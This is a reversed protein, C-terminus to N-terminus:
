TTLLDRTVLFHTTTTPQTRRGLCLLIPPPHKPIGLCPRPHKEGTIMTITIEVIRGLCQDVVATTQLRNGHCPVVEVVPVKKRRKGLCVMVEEGVMATKKRRKGLCVMAEVMIEMLLPHYPLHPQNGGGVAMKMVTTPDSRQVTMAIMMQDFHLGTTTAMTTTTGLIAGAAPHYLRLRRNGVVLMIEVPHCPLLQRNGVMM